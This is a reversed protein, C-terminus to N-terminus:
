YILVLTGRFVHVHSFIEVVFSVFSVFPFIIEGGVKIKSKKEHREHKEHNFNEAVLWYFSM